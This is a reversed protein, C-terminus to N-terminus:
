QGLSKSADKLRTILHTAVDGDLFSQSMKQHLEFMETEGDSDVLPVHLAVDDATLEKM